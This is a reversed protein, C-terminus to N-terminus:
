KAVPQIIQPEIGPLPLLNERRWLMYVLEPV